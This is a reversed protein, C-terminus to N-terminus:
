PDRLAFRFEIPDLRGDGDRDLAAILAGLRISARAPLLLNRLDTEDIAGDGNADLRFFHSPSKPTADRGLGRAPKTKGTTAPDNSVVALPSTWATQEPLPVRKQILLILPGLESAELEGSEDRDTQRVIVDASLNGGARRLVDDVEARSLGNTADRDFVVLLNSPALTPPSAANVSRPKPAAPRPKPATPAPFAFVDAPTDEAPALESAENSEGAASARERLMETPPVPARIVGLLELMRDYRARFEDLSLAGDADADYRQFEAKEVGLAIGAERLSVWGNADLDCVEFHAAADARVAQAREDALRLALEREAELDAPTKPAPKAGAAKTQQAKRGRRRQADASPVLAVALALCVLM